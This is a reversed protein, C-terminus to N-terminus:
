KPTRLGNMIYGKRQVVVVLFGFPSFFTESSMQLAVSGDTQWYQQRPLNSELRNWISSYRFLLIGLRQGAEDGLSEKSWTVFFGPLPGFGCARSVSVGNKNNNM